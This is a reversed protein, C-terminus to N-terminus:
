CSDACDDTRADLWSHRHKIAGLVGVSPELGLHSRNRRLRNHASYTTPTVGTLSEKLAVTPTTLPHGAVLTLQAAHRLRAV